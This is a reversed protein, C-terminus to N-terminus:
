RVGPVSIIVTETSQAIYLGFLIALLVVFMLVLGFLLKRSPAKRAAPLPPSAVPERAQRVEHPIPLSAQVMEISTEDDDTSDPVQLEPSTPGSSPSFTGEAPTVEASFPAPAVIPSPVEDITAETFDSHTVASDVGPLNTTIKTPDEDPPESPFDEVIASPAAPEAQTIVAPDTEMITEVRNEFSPSSEMVTDPGSWDAPQELAESAPIILPPLKMSAPNAELDVKRTDASWEDQAPIPGSNLMDEIIPTHRETAPGPGVESYEPLMPLDARITAPDESLLSLRSLEARAQLANQPRKKPDRALFRLTLEGLEGAGPLPAPDETMKAVLVQELSGRYPPQGCLMEYLIVGLAYVDVATGLGSPDIQEPAMYTPTGVIYGTKTLRNNSGQERLSAVIGFDLIKAVERGHENSVIINGPKLDRHVYGQRHAEALGAAIHEALLGAREPSLPAEAELLDKLPRGHLYEMVIYVSGNPANGYSLTSVVNPHDIMSVAAAERRFREALSKDGVMEGFLIKIACPEGSKTTGKYVCGTGGSGILTDFEFEGITLGKLANIDGLREGDFACHEPDTLYVALCQPCARM